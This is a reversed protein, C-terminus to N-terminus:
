HMLRVVSSTLGSLEICDFITDENCNEVGNKELYDCLLINVTTVFYQMGWSTLGLKRKQIKFGKWLVPSLSTLRWGKSFSKPVFYETYTPGDDPYHLRDYQSLCYRVDAESTLGKFTRRQTFFRGYIHAYEPSNVQELLTSSEQDNGVFVVMLYIDLTRLKDYIEAFADFQRARLRQMEDVILVAQSVGAKAAQDAIFFSVRDALHDARDRNGVELGADWCLHRFVSMITSIDRRPISVRLVPVQDGGRTVICQTLWDIATTKGARAPGLVVAGTVGRWIWGNIDQRLQEIAPTNIRLRNSTFVPHEYFGPKPPVTHSIM